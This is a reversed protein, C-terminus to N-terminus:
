LTRSEAVWSSIIFITPKGLAKIERGIVTVERLNKRKFIIINGM